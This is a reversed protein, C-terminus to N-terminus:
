NMLSKRCRLGFERAAVAKSLLLSFQHTLKRFADLADGGDQLLGSVRM